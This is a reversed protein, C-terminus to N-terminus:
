IAEEVERFMLFGLIAGAFVPLPFSAIIILRRKHPVGKDRFNAAAAFGGLINSVLQSIALVFGLGSSVATGAATMLGDSFLDAATAMYVMWAGASGRQGLGLRSRLREVGSALLVSSAAGVLFAAVLLWATLIDLIRPM